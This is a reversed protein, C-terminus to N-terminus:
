AANLEADSECLWVMLWSWGDTVVDDSECLWEIAWLWGM